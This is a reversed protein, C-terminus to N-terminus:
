RPQYGNGDAAADVDNAAHDDTREGSEDDEEGYPAFLSIDVLCFPHAVCVRKNRLLGVVFFSMWRM